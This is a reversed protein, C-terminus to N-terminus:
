PAHSATPSRPPRHTDLRAALACPAATHTTKANRHRPPRSSPHHPLRLTRLLTLPLHPHLPLPPHHTPPLLHLPRHLPPRTHTLPPSTPLLRTPCQPPPSSDTSPRPSASPMPPLPAAPQAPAPSTTPASQQTSVAAYFRVM